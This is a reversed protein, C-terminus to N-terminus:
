SSRNTHGRSLTFLAGLAGLTDVVVDYWRSKRGPVWSQHWEDSLAYLVTVVLSWRLAVRLPLGEGRALARGLLFCLVAYELAHGAKRILIDLWTESIHPLDPQSSLLFILAMWGLVPLWYVALIRWRKRSEVETM